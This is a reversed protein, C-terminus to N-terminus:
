CSPRPIPEGAQSFAPPRQWTIVRASGAYSQLVAGLEIGVPLPYSGALKFEHTWPIDFQRQDCFRGGNAALAGTYLDAVTPGNPNDDSSCFVSVNKEATWSAILTSGHPLRGQFTFDFGDYISQDPVNTDLLKTGYVSRKAPNLNYITITEAPDLVGVLTEDIGGALNPSTIAPMPVTFATYDTTTILTRDTGSLDQYTRHYYAASVSARSFLQHSISAMLEINGQRQIDPHFDRDAELGFRPNASPGIEHDQALGDNDTPLRVGSCANGAANIGCDFWNRNEQQLGPAYTDAFNGTLPMYYKSVAAKIATRGNGFLDYAASLRPALDGIWNPVNRREPFYRAPVFRGAPVSTPDIMSNFNDVRLGM